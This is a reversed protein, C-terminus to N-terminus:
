FRTWVIRVDLGLYLFVQGLVIRRTELDLDHSGLIGYAETQLADASTLVRDGNRAVHQTVVECVQERDHLQAGTGLHERNHREDSSAAHELRTSAARRGLM